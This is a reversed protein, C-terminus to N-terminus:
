FTIGANLGAQQPGVAPVLYINVGKKELLKESQHMLFYTTKSTVFGVAAGALVDTAWHVNDHIRSLAVLTATGYAIPPVLKTDKYITALSTAVTFATSTHSSPMSAHHRGGEGWEFRHNQHTANPRRRQFEDKLQHTVFDNVHLSFFTLLAARQMNKNKLALGSVYLVGTAPMMYKTRGLPEIYGSITHTVESRNELMFDRMPEDGFHYTAIGVGSVATIVIGSKFLLKSERSFDKQKLNQWSRKISFKASDAPAPAAATDAPAQAFASLQLMLLLGTLLTKM